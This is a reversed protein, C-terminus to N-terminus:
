RQGTWHMHMLSSTDRVNVSDDNHTESIARIPNIHAHSINDVGVGAMENGTLRQKWYVACGKNRLARVREALPHPWSCSAVFGM